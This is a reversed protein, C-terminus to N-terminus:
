GTLKKLQESRQKTTRGGHLIILNRIFKGLRQAFYDLHEKRETLVISSREQELSNLINNFIIDNREENTALLSYLEQISLSEKKM